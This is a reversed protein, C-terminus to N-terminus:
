YSLTSRPPESIEKRRRLLLGATLAGVATTLQVGYHLLVGPAFAQMIFKDTIIMEGGVRGLIAAALYVLVPHKSMLDALVASGFIVVPISLAFGLLLLVFNGQAVAAVAVMNDTSMVVEAVVVASMAAFLGPVRAQGIGPSAQERFLKIAIFLIFTGGILRLFELRLLQTAFLTALSLVPIACVSGLIFARKRIPKPVAKALSAIVVANDGSLVLNIFAVSILNSVLTLQM